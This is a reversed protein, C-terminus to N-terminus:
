YINEAIELNLPTYHLKTAMEAGDTFCWHIYERLVGRKPETLSKRFVLYTVGTVPYANENEPETMALAFSEPSPVIFKGKANQLAVCTLRGEKAYTYETYGIGGLIRSVNNCVGPNKQGGIGVPFKVSKGTGIETKWVDSVSSLFQTFLFSTGSSDARYVPVIKLAPLTIGPNDKAIRADNWRQIKGRYIDALVDCSLKLEGDKVGPLNVIVVIGGALMPFQVLGDAELETESLPADTGAFDVTGERVQNVGAGSGLGQYNVQVRGDSLESFLYSWSSYVPSPFTAGSGNLVITNETVKGDGCGLLLTFLAFFTFIASTGWFAVPFRHHLNFM